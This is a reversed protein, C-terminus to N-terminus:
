VWGKYLLLMSITNVFGHVLVNLWLRGQNMVYIGGLFVGIVGTLIQGTIGQYDHLYGFLLSTVAIGAFVGTNGPMLIMLRSLFFGRFIIEEMFAGITWGIIISVFLFSTNGELQSFPGRNLQNGTMAELVPHFFYFTGIVLVVAMLAAMLVTQGIHSPRILGLEKIGGKKLVSYLLIIGSSFVISRYPVNLFFLICLVFLSVIAPQLAKTHKM